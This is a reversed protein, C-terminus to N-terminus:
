LHYYGRSEGVGIGSRMMLHIIELETIVKVDARLMDVAQAKGVM